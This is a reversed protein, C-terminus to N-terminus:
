ITINPKPECHFEIKKPYAKYPIIQTLKLNISNFIIIPPM